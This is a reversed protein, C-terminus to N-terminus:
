ARHEKALWRRLGASIRRLKRPQPQASAEPKPKQVPKRIPELGAKVREADLLAVLEDRHINRRQGNPLTVRICKSAFGRFRYGRVKLFDCASM